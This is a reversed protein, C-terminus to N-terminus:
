TTNRSQTAIAQALENACRGCLVLGPILPVWVGCKVCLCVTTMVNVVCRLCFRRGTGDELSWATVSEGCAACGVSVPM